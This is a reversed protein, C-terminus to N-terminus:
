YNESRLLLVVVVVDAASCLVAAVAGAAGLGSFSACVRAM